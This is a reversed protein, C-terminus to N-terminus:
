NIWLAKQERNAYDIFHQINANMDEIDIYLRKIYKDKEIYPGCIWTGLLAGDSKNNIIIDNKSIDYDNYYKKM